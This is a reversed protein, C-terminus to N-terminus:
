ILSPNPAMVVSIISLLLIVTVAFIVMCAQINIGSYKIEDSISKKKRLDPRQTTNSTKLM